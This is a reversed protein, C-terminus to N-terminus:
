HGCKEDDIVTMEKMNWVIEIFVAFIQNRYNDRSRVM